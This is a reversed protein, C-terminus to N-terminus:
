HVLFLLPPLHTPSFPSSFVNILTFINFPSFLYLLSHNIFSFHLLPRWLTQPIITRVVPSHPLSVHYSSSFVLFAKQLFRVCSPFKL